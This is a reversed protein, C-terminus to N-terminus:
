ARGRALIARGSPPDRTLSGQNGGAARLETSLADTKPNSTVPLVGCWRVARFRGMVRMIVGGRVMGRM